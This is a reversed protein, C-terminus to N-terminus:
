SRDKEQLQNKREKMKRRKRLKPSELLKLLNVEILHLNKEKSVLLKTKKKNRDRNNKWRKASKREERKRKKKRLQKKHLKLMLRKKRKRKSESKIEMMMKKRQSKRRQNKKNLNLSSNKLQQLGVRLRAMLALFRSCLRLHTLEWQQLKSFKRCFYIQTRASRALSLRSPDFMSKKKYVCRLLTLYKRCFSYKRTRIRM